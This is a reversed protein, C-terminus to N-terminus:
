DPSFFGPVPLIVRLGFDRLPCSDDSGLFVECLIGVMPNLLTSPCHLGCINRLPCSDDSILFIEPTM